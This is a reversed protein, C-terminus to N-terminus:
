ESVVGDDDDDSSESESFPTVVQPNTGGTVITSSVNRGSFWDDTQYHGCVTNSQCDCRRSPVDHPCRIKARYPRRIRKGTCSASVGCLPLFIKRGCQLRIYNFCQSVNHFMTDLHFM